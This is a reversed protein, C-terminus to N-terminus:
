PSTATITSTVVFGPSAIFCEVPGTSYTVLWLDETAVPTGLTSEAIEKCTQEVLTKSGDLAATGVTILRANTKASSCYVAAYDGTDPEFVACVEGVPFSVPGYTNRDFVDAETLGNTLEFPTLSSSSQAPGNVPVASYPLSNPLTNFTTKVKQGLLSVAGIIFVCLLLLTGLVVAAIIGASSGKQAAVFVPAGPQQPFQGQAFQAPPFQAPPFPQAPASFSRQTPTDWSPVDPSLVQPPAVPPATPSPIQPAAMMSTVPAALPESVPVSRGPAAPSELYSLTAALDFTVAPAVGESATADQPDSIVAADSKAASGSTQKWGALTMTVVDVPAGVWNMGM